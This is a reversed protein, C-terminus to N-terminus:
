QRRDKRWTEVMQTMNLINDTKTIIQQLNQRINEKTIHEKLSM